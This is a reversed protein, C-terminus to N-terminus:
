FLIQLRLGTTITTNVNITSPTAVQFDYTLRCWPTIAYNYFLEVGHEDRQPTFPRALAKFNDSLGLYYYGVGFTDLKRGPIMSRGGIGGNAVFRVPNPNGDSIGFQGFLGWNRKEDLEDVWISQYFNAYVSWSGTELPTAPNRAVLSRLFPINLYAAPDFSRYKATSYTGGFNYAGPRDLFKTRLVLDPVLVVGRDYLNQLGSTAREEPDFVTFTFVPELDKLVAFGAGAAAYPITRAVIPNFVLSTNQFGELGPKNTGLGPSYRLPYEDLTNIKGAYVAFNESLAQTLKLGTISTISTTADPFNMAINSPAILGDIGNLDTGYRTEAHMNLFLGKWLGLKQGDVNFLYDLKGGYEWARENGGATVGQYFQTAFLDFTLGRNALASRAGWWDGTLRARSFLDGAYPNAPPVPETAVTGAPESPTPATTGQSPGEVAVPVSNPGPTVAQPYQGFALAGSFLLVVSAIVVQRFDARM